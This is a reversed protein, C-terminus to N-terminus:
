FRSNPNFIRRRVNRGTSAFGTDWNGRVSHARSRQGIHNQYQQELMAAMSKYSSPKQNYAVGDAGLRARETARSYYLAAMRARDAAMLLAVGEKDNASLTSTSATLTHPGRYWLLFSQGPDGELFRLFSKESGGSYRKEQTWDSKDLLNSDGDTSIPSEIDVVSHTLDDWGSVLSELDYLGSDNNSLSVVHQAPMDRSFKLVAAQISRGEANDLALCDAYDGTSHNAETTSNYARSVTLVPSTSKATVAVQETGILFVDGVRATDYFRTEAAAVTERSGQDFARARLSSGSINLAATLIGSLMLPVVGDDLPALDRARNRVDILDM